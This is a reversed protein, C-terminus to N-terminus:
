KNTLETIRKSAVKEWKKITKPKANKYDLKGKTVLNNVEQITMANEILINLGPDQLKKLSSKHPIYVVPVNGYKNIEKAIEPNSALENAMAMRSVIDSDPINEMPKLEEKLNMIKGCEINRKITNFLKLKQEM